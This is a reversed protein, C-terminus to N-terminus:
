QIAQKVYAVLDGVTHLERLADEPIEQISFADEVSMTLEVVDLSDANLDKLFDTEETIKEEDYDLQESILKRITEFVM